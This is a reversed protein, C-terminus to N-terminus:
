KRKQIEANQKEKKQKGKKFREHFAIAISDFRSQIKSRCLLNASPIHNMSSPHHIPSPHLTNGWLLPTVLNLKIQLIMRSGIIIKIFDKPRKQLGSDKLTTNKLNKNREEEM